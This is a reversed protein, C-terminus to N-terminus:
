KEESIIWDNAKMDEFRVCMGRMNDVPLIWDQSKRKVVKGKNIFPIIDQFSYTKVPEQYIEWLNVNCWPWPISLHEINGGTESNDLYDREHWTCLRVKKGEELAKMAESFRM